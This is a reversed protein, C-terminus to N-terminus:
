RLPGFGSTLIGAYLESHFANRDFAIVKYGTKKLARAVSISQVTHGDLLLIHFTM